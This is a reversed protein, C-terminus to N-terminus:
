LLCFSLLLAPPLLFFLVWGACCVQNHHQLVACKTIISNVPLGCCCCRQFHVFSGPMSLVSGHLKVLISSSCTGPIRLAILVCRNIRINIRYYYSSYRLTRHALVAILTHHTILSSGCVFLGSFFDLVNQRSESPWVINSLYHYLIRFVCVPAIGDTVSASSLTLPLLLPLLLLLLLLLGHLAPCSREGQGQKRAKYHQRATTRVLTTPATRRAYTVWSFRGQQPRITIHM